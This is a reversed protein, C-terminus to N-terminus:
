GQHKRRRDEHALDRLGAKKMCVRVPKVSHRKPNESVLMSSPGTTFAVFTECAIARKTAGADILPRLGGIPM